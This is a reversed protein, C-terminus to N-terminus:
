RKLFRIQRVGASCVSHGPSFFANYAASPFFFVCTNPMSLSCHVFYFLLLLCLYFFCILCFSFWFLFSLFHPVSSFPAQLFANIVHCCALNPTSSFPLSISKPFFFFFYWERDLNHAKTCSMEDPTKSPCDLGWGGMETNTQLCAKKKCCLHCLHTKGTERFTQTQQLSRM